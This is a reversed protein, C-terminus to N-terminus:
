VRMYQAQLGAVRQGHPMAPVRRYTDLHLLADVALPLGLLNAAGFTYLVSARDVHPRARISDLNGGLISELFGQAVRNLKRALSGWLGAM